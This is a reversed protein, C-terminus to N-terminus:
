PPEGARRLVAELRARLEVFDCPKTMYDDAGGDLADIESDPEGRGTLIIISLRRTREDLRLARCVETGDMDPLSRDLILADPLQERAIRLAELGSSATLVRTAPASLLRQFIRLISPEDDVVLITRSRM